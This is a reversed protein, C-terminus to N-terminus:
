HQHTGTKAERFRSSLQNTLHAAERPRRLRHLQLRGLAPDAFLAEYQARRRAFTDWAWRIPHERSLWRRFDERNGTGPWLEKGGIARVLSRRIVRAMVLPREYDLWVLDTARALIVPRVVTYNGDTVWAEGSLAAVARRALEEPDHEHLGRWGPQWNIADLEVHPCALAAALRRAFTSKGAGSSGIVSVRM